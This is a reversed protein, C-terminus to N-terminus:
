VATVATSIRYWQLEAPWLDKVALKSIFVWVELRESIMKMSGLVTLHLLHYNDKRM